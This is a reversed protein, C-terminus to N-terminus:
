PNSVATITANHSEGRFFGALEKRNREDTFTQIHGGEKILWLTKPEEALAYLDRSHSADIIQDGAPHILLLPAPSIGAIRESPNFATPITLALPYKLVATLWFQGLKDRAIRRYSAFPSEAAVAKFLGKAGPLSATYIAIAAGLSQGFIFVPASDKRNNLFRLARLADQHVGELTPTGESAGYGRYDITFLNFGHSPLWYVSALHTSINEANGHLHLVTGSPEGKAPLFWGYLAPGEGDDIRVADYRLGLEAPSIVPERTPYFFVSSCASLSILACLALFSGKFICTSRCRPPITMKESDGNM